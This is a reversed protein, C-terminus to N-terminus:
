QLVERNVVDLMVNAAARIQKKLVLEKKFFLPVSHCQYDFLLASDLVCFM